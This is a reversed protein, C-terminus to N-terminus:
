LVNVTCLRCLVVKVQDPLGEAAKQVPRIGEKEIRDATPQANEKVYKATDKAPQQVASEAQKRADEPEPISEKVQKLGDKAAKQGPRVGENVAQLLTRLIPTCEATRM